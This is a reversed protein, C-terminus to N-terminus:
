DYRVFHARCRPEYTVPVVTTHGLEAKSGVMQTPSDPPAIEGNILRQVWAADRMCRSGNERYTCKATLVKVDDAIALFDYVTRESDKLPFPRGRYDRALAAVIIHRGEGAQRECFEIIGEPFFQAEDIGIVTTEPRIISELEEIGGNIYQAELQLKDHSVVHDLGYRDDLAPKVVQVPQEAILHLRVRQILQTTKGSYM